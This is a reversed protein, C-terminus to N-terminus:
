LCINSVFLSRLLCNLLSNSVGLIISTMYKVIIGSQVLSGVFRKTGDFFRLLQGVLSTDLNFYKSTVVYSLVALHYMDIPLRTSKCYTTLQEVM